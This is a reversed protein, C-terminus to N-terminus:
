AKFVPVFGTSKFLVAIFDMAKNYTPQGNTSGQSTYETEIPGVKERIVEATVGDPRIDKTFLEVALQCQANKLMEPIAAQDLYERHLWVDLRPFPLRQTTTTRYGKFKDEMGDLYDAAKRLLIENAADDVGATLGRAAIFTDLEATTAWSDAAAIGTGDEITLAM